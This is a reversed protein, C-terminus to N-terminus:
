AAIVEPEGFTWVPEPLGRTFMAAQCLEEFSEDGLVQLGRQELYNAIFEEPSDELEPDYLLRALARHGLEQGGAFSAPIEGGFRQSRLYNNLCYGVERIAFKAREDEPWKWMSGIHAGTRAPLVEVKGRGRQVAYQKRCDPSCFKAGNRVGELPGQCKACLARMVERPPLACETLIALAESLLEDAGVLLAKGAMLSMPIQVAKRAAELAEPTALWPHLSPTM